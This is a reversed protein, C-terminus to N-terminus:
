ENQLVLDRFFPLAKIFGCFNRWEELKHNKRQFYMTKLQLYNTTIARTYLIDEPINKVLRKWITKAMKKDKDKWYMYLEKDEELRALTEPYIDESFIENFNMELIKHMTSTSSVTDQFLYRDFQKWWYLPATIVIFVNIGKLFCDHGSGIPVSGLRKVRKIDNENIEYNNPNFKLGNSKPLKSALISEKLNNVKTYQIYM